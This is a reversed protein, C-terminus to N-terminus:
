KVSVVRHCTWATISVGTIEDITKYSRGKFCKKNLSSIDFNLTCDGVKKRKMKEEDDNNLNVRFDLHTPQTDPNWLAYFSLFLSLFVSLCLCFFFSLFVYIMEKNLQQLFHRQKVCVCFVCLKEHCNHEHIRLSM